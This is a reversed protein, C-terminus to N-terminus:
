CTSCLLKKCLKCGLLKMDFSRSPGGEAEGVSRTDAPRSSASEAAGGLSPESPTSAIGESAASSQRALGVSSGCRPMVTGSRPADTELLYMHKM